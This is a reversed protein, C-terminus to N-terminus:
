RRRRFHRTLTIAWVGMGVLFAAMLTLFPRLPLQPPQTANAGILLFHIAVMFVVLLCGLWGAHAGLYALTSERNAPALWYDRNPLNIAGPMLRPLVGMTLVVLLPLGIGLALAFLLYVHRSMWGNAAGGAGFHSAIQPPLQDVTVVLLTAGVVLLLIFLPYAIRNM